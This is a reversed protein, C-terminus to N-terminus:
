EKGGKDNTEEPDPVGEGTNEDEEPQSGGWRDHGMFAVMSEVEKIPTGSRVLASAMIVSTVLVPYLLIGKDFGEVRFEEPIAYFLLITILGRPAIYVEPKMNKSGFIRLFIARVGYIIVIIIGSIMAVKLDILSSLVITMGFIVFFYTRAVFASEITILKLDKLTNDIAFHDCRVNILKQFFLRHNNLVLGFVLIILLSSLHFLKGISYLLLLVTVLLFLKLHNKLKQFALILGYSVAFSIAITILINGLVKLTIAGAGGDGGSHRILFYFFMIGLIDSFTGDYVLFESKKKPLGGVSPIIIASSMVSLPIAYLLATFRDGIWFYHFVFAIAFSTGVLSFLAVALSRGILSLKEKRLELDLAAELVILILGVIGLIELIPFLNINEQGFLKMGQHILIGLLILMLVTPINTKKALVDFFYSVILVLCFISVLIYPDIPSM